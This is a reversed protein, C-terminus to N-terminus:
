ESIIFIDENPRKMYYRERAVREVGKRGSTLADLRISDKEYQEGCEKIESKLENIRLQNLAFKRLSNEDVVGIILVGIIITILYKHRCCYAWISSIKKM